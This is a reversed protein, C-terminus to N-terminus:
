KLEPCMDKKDNLPTMDEDKSSSSSSVSVRNSKYKAENDDSHIALSTRRLNLKLCPQIKRILVKKFCILQHKRKLLLFNRSIYKRFRKM